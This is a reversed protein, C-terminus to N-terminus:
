DYPLIAKWDHATATSTWSANIEKINDVIDESVRIEADAKLLEYMGILKESQRPIYNRYYNVFVMYKQVEKKSKSFRAKSMFNKVKQDQPAVVNPTITRGLFEVQTVGLYSKEITLKLGAERICKFVARVNKILQETTNAAVRIDDVYQACQDAKIVSDLYEHMFSSFASLARNLKKGVLHAADSLTSVPQNNNMYDDAIIKTVKRLDVLLRLKGNSKRQAFIPSAYQSSILTSFIGYKHTLSLEVTLDEKLNIPVPLIETYVLKDDKPTLSIKFQTNSGIDLRHRAFVDNFEVIRADLNERDKLTILSDTWKFMSFFNNRSDWNATPDLIELESLERLKKM